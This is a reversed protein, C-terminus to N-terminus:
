LTVERSKLSSKEFNLDAHAVEHDVIEVKATATGYAEHWAVLDYKGPPVGAIEYTENKAARAFFSNPLVLIYAHMQSHIDCGVKIVEPVTFTKQFTGGGLQAINFIKNEKSNTRVNHLIADNNHFVVKQGVVAPVVHPVFTIDRQDLLPDAMAEKQASALNEGTLYVIADTAIVGAPTKGGEFLVKGEVAGSAEQGLANVCAAGPMILGLWFFVFFRLIYKQM